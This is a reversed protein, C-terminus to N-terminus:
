AANACNEGGPEPWAKRVPFDTEIERRSPWDQGPIPNGAFLTRIKSLGYRIISVFLIISM